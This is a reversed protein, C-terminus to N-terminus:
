KQFVFDEAEFSMTYVRALPTGTIRCFRNITENKPHVRNNEIKWVATKSCGLREAMEPRSLGLEERITQMSKGINM